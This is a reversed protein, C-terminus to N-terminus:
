KLIPNLLLVSPSMTIVVSMLLILCAKHGEEEEEELFSLDIGSCEKATPM